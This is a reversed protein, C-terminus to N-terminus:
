LEFIEGPRYDRDYLIRADEMFVFRSGDYRRTAATVDALLREVHDSVSLLAM